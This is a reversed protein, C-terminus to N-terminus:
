KRFDHQVIRDYRLVAYKGQDRLKIVDNWLRKRIETTERSFDENIYIGTGKLKHANKLILIKERYDLMKLVITRPKSEEGTQAKGTRHAREINIQRQLGLENTFLNQMKVETDEWSERESEKVGDIRLNNRRSRDELDRIKERVLGSENLM